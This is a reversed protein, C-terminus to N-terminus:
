ETAATVSTKEDAPPTPAKAEPTPKTARFFNSRLKQDAKELMLWLEPEEPSSIIITGKTESELTLPGLDRGGVLLHIDKKFGTGFLTLKLASDGATEVFVDKIRLSAQDEARKSRFLAEAVDRLNNLAEGSFLGTLFAVTCYGFLNLDDVKLSEGALKGRLLLCLSPALIAGLVPRSLYYLTWTPTYNDVGKHYAISSIGHVCGGLIGLAGFLMLLELDASGLLHGFSNRSQKALPADPDHEVARSLEELRVLERLNLAFNVSPTKSEPPSFPILVSLVSPVEIREKLLSARRAKLLESWKSFLTNVKSRQLANWRKPDDAINSLDEATNLATRGLKFEASLKQLELANLVNESPAADLKALNDKASDIRAMSEASVMLLFERTYRASFAEAAYPNGPWSITVYYIAILSVLILGGMCIIAGDNRKTAFSPSSITRVSSLTNSWLMSFKKM